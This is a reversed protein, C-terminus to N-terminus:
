FPETIRIITRELEDLVEQRLLAEGQRHRGGASPNRAVCEEALEARASVVGYRHMGHAVFDVTHGADAAQPLDIRRDITDQKM